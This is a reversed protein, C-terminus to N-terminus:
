WSEPDVLKERLREPQRLLGVKGRDDGHEDRDREGDARQAGERVAFRHERPRERADRERELRGVRQEEAPREHREREGTAPRMQREEEHRQSRRKERERDPLGAAEALHREEGLPLRGPERRPEFSGTM